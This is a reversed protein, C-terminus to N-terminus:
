PPPLPMDLQLKLQSPLLQTQYISGYIMLVCHCLFWNKAEGQIAVGVAAGGVGMHAALVVAVTTGVGMRVVVGEGVKVVVAASM